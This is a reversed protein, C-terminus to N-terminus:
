MFMRVEVEVANVRIKTLRLAKQADANYRGKRQRIVDMLQDGEDGFLEDTSMELGFRCLDVDAAIEEAQGATLMAVQGAEDGANGEEQETGAAHPGYFVGGGVARLAALASTHRKGSATCLM